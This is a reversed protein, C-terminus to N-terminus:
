SDIGSVHAADISRVDFWWTTGDCIIYISDGIVASTEFVAGDLNYQIVSADSGGSVEHYNVSEGDNTVGSDGTGGAAPLGWAVINFVNSSASSLIFRANWGASHSLKPLNITVAASANQECMFIKGSDGPTLEASTDLKQVFTNGYSARSGLKANAM